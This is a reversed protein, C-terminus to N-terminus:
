MSRISDVISYPSQGFGSTLSLAVNAYSSSSMSLAMVMPTVAVKAVMAVRADRNQHSFAPLCTNEKQLYGFFTVLTLALDM